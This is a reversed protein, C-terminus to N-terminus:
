GALFPTILGPTARDALDLADDTPVDLVRVAGSGGATTASLTILGARRQFWTDRATWGIVHQTALAERKRTLSGSRAVVHGDILAHGLARSRDAALAVGAAVVVAPLVLLWLSGGAAVPLSAAAAVVATPVLARVWRRRTARAGHAVLAADVPAATGVLAVAARRVVDHPAPPVLVSASRETRSLGTVIATLRRGRALRLGPPEHVALGALRDVDISTERTTLLGRSLQWTDGVRILRLAWNTILYGLVTLVLILLPGGVLVLVVLLPGIAALDEEAVDIEVQEVVQAAFGVLGAAAVIGASTFPAYRLWRWEFAVVPPPDQPVDAEGTAAAESRAARLLQTRLTQAEAVQLADLSIQQEDSASATSGTGIKVVTLGLVRHVVTATLDVTRVRDIATSLLKRSVLGRRLEVRDDRVRYTTTFYSIVGIGIPLGLLALGLFPGGPPGETAGLVMVGVVPVIFQRLQMIPNVLLMRPDLRQWGDTAEPDESAQSM